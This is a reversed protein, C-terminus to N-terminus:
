LTFYRTSEVHVSMKASKSDSSLESTTEVDGRLFGAEHPDIDLVEM